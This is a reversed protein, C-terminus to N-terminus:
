GEGFGAQIGILRLCSKLVVQPRYRRGLLERGGPPFALGSRM